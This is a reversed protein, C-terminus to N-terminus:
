KQLGHSILMLSFALGIQPWDWKHTFHHRGVAVGLLYYSIRILILSANM